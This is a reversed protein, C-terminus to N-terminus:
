LEMDNTLSPMIDKNTVEGRDGNTAKEMEAYIRDITEESSSYLFANSFTSGFIEGYEFDIGARNRM